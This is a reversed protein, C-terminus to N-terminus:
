SGKVCMRGAQYQVRSHTLWEKGRMGQVWGRDLVKGRSRADVVKTATGASRCCVSSQNRHRTFGSPCVLCQVMVQKRSKTDSHAVAAQRSTNKLHARRDVVEHGDLTREGWRRRFKQNLGHM